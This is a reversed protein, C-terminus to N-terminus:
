ARRREEFWARLILAVIWLGFSSVLLIGIYFRELEPLTAYRDFALGIICGAFFSFGFRAVERLVVFM